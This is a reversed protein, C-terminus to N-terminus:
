TPNEFGDLSHLHSLHGTLLSHSTGKMMQTSLTSKAQIYSHM